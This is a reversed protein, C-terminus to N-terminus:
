DQLSRILKYTGAAVIGGALYWAMTMTVTAPTRRTPKEGLGLLGPLTVAGLGAVTGLSPGVVWARRGGGAAIFSYYLSNSVIDGVLALRRLRRKSPPKHGLARILKETARMGLVDARPAKPSLKRASEHLVTLAVAGALGSTIAVLTKM